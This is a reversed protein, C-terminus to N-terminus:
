RWTDHPLIGPCAVFASAQRATILRVEQLHEPALAITRPGKLPRSSAVLCMDWALPCSLWFDNQEWATVQDRANGRMALPQDSTVFPVDPDITYALAWDFHVWERARRPMESRMLTISFNKALESASSLHALSPVIASTSQVRFLPSRAAMMATFAVLFDRHGVWSEFGESRITGRVHPIQNEFRAFVEDATADPRGDESYDYFGRGWGIQSPSRESWTGRQVDFVWLPKPHRERSPHIFGRLYGQPSYHDKRNRHESTPKPKKM